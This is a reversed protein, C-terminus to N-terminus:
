YVFGKLYGGWSLSPANVVLQSTYYASELKM